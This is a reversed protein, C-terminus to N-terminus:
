DVFYDARCWCNSDSFIIIFQGMSLDLSVKANTISGNLSAWNNSFISISYGNTNSWVYVGAQSDRSGIITILKISSYRKFRQPMRRISRWSLDPLVHQRIEGKAFAVITEVDKASFDGIVDVPIKRAPIIWILVAFIVVPIGFLSAWKWKM